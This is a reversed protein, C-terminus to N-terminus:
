MRLEQSVAHLVDGALAACSARITAADALGEVARGAMMAGPAGAHGFLERLLDAARAVVDGAMPDTQLTKLKASLVQTSTAQLLRLVDLADKDSARTANGVRDAIKYLKAVLLATPGAVAIEFQRDDSEPELSALVRPENDVLSAELGIAKRAARTGHVGLDAGRRGGNAVANPVLLDLEVGESSVWAGPHVGSSFGAAELAAALRPDPALRAPNVALDADTTYPAVAFDGEGTHMYVAQAGVLVVASRHPGLAALADLLVRRALIYEPDLM